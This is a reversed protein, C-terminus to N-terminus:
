RRVLRHRGRLQCLADAIIVAHPKRVPEFTVVTTGFAIDHPGSKAKQPRRQGFDTERRPSGDLGDAGYRASTRKVWVSRPSVNILQVANNWHKRPAPQNQRTKTFRM